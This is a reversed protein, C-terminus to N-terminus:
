WMLWIEGYEKCWLSCSVWYKGGNHFKEPPLIPYVHLTYFHSSGAKFAWVMWHKFHTAPWLGQPSHYLNQSFPTMWCSILTYTFSEGFWGTIIVPTELVQSLILRIGNFQPDFVGTRWYVVSPRKLGFPMFPMSLSPCPALSLYFLLHQHFAAPCFLLLSM